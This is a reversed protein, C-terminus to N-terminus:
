KYIKSKAFKTLTVIRKDLKRKESHTTLGKIAEICEKSVLKPNANCWLLLMKRCTILRLNLNHGQNLKLRDSNNNIIIDQIESEIKINM